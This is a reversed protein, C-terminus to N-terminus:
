HPHKKRPTLPPPPPPRPARDHRARLNGGRGEVARLWAAIRLVQILIDTKASGTPGAIELARGPRLAAHSDVVALGTRVVEVASRRLFAAATEDPEINRLLDREATTAM